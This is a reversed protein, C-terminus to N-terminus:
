HVPLEWDHRPVPAPKASRHPDAASTVKVGVLKCPVDQHAFEVTGGTIGAPTTGGRVQGCFYKLTDNMPVTDPCFEYM